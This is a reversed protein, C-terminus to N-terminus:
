STLSIRLSCGSVLVKTPHLVLFHREWSGASVMGDTHRLSSVAVKVLMDFEHLESNPTPVEHIKYPKNFKYLDAEFSQFEFLEV